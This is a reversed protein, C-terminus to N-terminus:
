LNHPTPEVVAKFMEKIVKQLQRYASDYRQVDISNFIHAKRAVQNMSNGIRYLERTMSYFEQNPAERPICGNILMRVYAERSLGCKKARKNLKEMEEKYLRVKIENNRNRLGIAGKM